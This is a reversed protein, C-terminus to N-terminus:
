RTVRVLACTTRDGTAACAQCSGPAKAYFLGDRMPQLVAPDSSTWSIGALAGADVSLRQIAGVKLSARAPQITFSGLKPTTAVVQVTAQAAGVSATLTATGPMQGAHVTAGFAAAVNPDTTQWQVAEAPLPRGDAVLQLARRSGVPISLRDPEIKFTQVATVLVLLSSGGPARVEAEGNRHGILNGSSDVEVISTDASRVSERSPTSGVTYPPTVPTELRDIVFSRQRFAVVPTAATQPGETPGSCAVVFACCVGCFRSACMSGRKGRLAEVRRM